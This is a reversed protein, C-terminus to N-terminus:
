GKWYLYEKCNYWYMQIIMFTTYLSTSQPMKERLGDNKGWFWVITKRRCSNLNLDVFRYILDVVIKIWIMLILLFFCFKVNSFIVLFWLDYFYTFNLM